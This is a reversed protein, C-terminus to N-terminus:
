RAINSINTNSLCHMNAPPAVYEKGVDDVVTGTMHQLLELWHQHSELSNAVLILMESSRGQGGSVVTLCLDVQVAGCFCCQSLRCKAIICRVNNSV